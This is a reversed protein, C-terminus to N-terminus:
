ELLSLKASIELLEMLALVLGHVEDSYEDPDNEALEDIAKRAYVIVESRRKKLAYKFDEAKM